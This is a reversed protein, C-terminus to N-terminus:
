ILEFNSRGTRGEALEAMRKDMTVLKGGHHIALALLYADTVQQHGSIQNGLNGFADPVSIDDAWFQHAPHRATIRLANLAEM